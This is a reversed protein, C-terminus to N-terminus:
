CHVEGQMLSAVAAAAQDGSSALELAIRRQDESHRNQSLKFKAQINAIEIAFGVIMGLLRSRREGALDAKWPAPMRAEHIATLREVLAELEAESDLLGPTGRVQVVAYNWTPVGPSSYWSPSVYAHPGQFVVLVEAGSAFHQWQPNARAMHCLLRGKAGAAREYAFPLHSVFPVGDPATVLMGFPYREILASIRESDSEKFQEPLYMASAKNSWSEVAVHRM